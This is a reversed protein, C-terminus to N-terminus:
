IPRREAVQDTNLLSPAAPGLRYSEPVPGSLMPQFQTTSRQFVDAGFLPLGDPASRPPITEAAVPRPFPELGEPQVVGVGLASLAAIMEPTMEGAGAPEQSGPLYRDLLAPDHGAAQLRARLQDDSLGTQRLRERVLEPNTRLVDIQQQTPQQATAQGVAALSLCLCVCLCSLARIKPFPKTM